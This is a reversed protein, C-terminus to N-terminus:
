SPLKGQATTFPQGDRQFISKYGIEPSSPCKHRKYTTDLFDVQSKHHIYKLKITKQHNNLTTVFEQFHEETHEWKGWIDDLYRFYHTPLRSRKPFPTQEWHVMYINACAPAFKKGIATGKKNTLLGPWQVWIKKHPNTRTDGSNVWRSTLGFM